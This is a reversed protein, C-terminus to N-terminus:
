QAAQLTKLVAICTDPDVVGALVKALKPWEGALTTPLKPWEGPALLM